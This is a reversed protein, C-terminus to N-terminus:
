DRYRLHQEDGCRRWARRALVHALAFAFATFLLAASSAFLVGLDIDFGYQMRSDGTFRLVMGAFGSAGVVALLLLTALAFAHRRESWTRARDIDGVTMAINQM